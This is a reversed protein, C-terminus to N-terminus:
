STMGMYINNINYKHQINVWYKGSANISSVDSLIYLKNDLTLKLVSGNPSVAIQKTDKYDDVIKWKNNNNNKIYINNNYLKWKCNFSEYISDIKKGFYIWKTGNVTNNSINQRQVLTNSELKLFINGNLNTFINKFNNLKTKKILNLKKTSLNLKKINNNYNIKKWINNNLVYIKKKSIAWLSNDYGCCIDIINDNSVINMNKMKKLKNNKLFYIKNKNKNKILLWVNGFFSIAIKIINKNLKTKSWNYTIIKKRNNNNIIIENNNTTGWIYNRGGYLNILNFIDENSKDLGNPIIKKYSINCEAYPFMISGLVNSHGLGLSHGFEHVTTFKISTFCDTIKYKNNKVSDYIIDDLEWAESKDYRLDGGVSGIKGIEGQPSWTEALIGDINDITTMGLRIDSINGNQYKTDNLNYKGYYFSSPINSNTEFGKNIFNVSLTNKSFKKFTKSFLKNWEKISLIIENIFNNKSVRNNEFEYTNKKIGNDEEIINNPLMFGYTVNVIQDGLYLNRISNYIEIWIDDVIEIYSLNSNIIRDLKIQKKTIKKNKSFNINNLSHFAKSRKINILLNDKEENKKNIVKIEKDLM